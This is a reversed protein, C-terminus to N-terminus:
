SEQITCNEAGARHRTQGTLHNKRKFGTEPSLNRLREADDLRGNETLIISMRLLIKDARIKIIPVKRYRVRGTERLACLTLTGM